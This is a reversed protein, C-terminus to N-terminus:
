RPREPLSDIRGTVKAFSLAINGESKSPIPPPELGLKVLAPREQIALGQFARITGALVSNAQAAALSSAPKNELARELQTMALVINADWEAVVAARSKAV